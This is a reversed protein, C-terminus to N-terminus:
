RAGALPGPTSVATGYPPTYMDPMRFSRYSPENVQMNFVQPNPAPATVELSQM